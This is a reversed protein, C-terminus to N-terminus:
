KGVKAHLEPAEAKMKELTPSWASLIQSRQVMDKAERLEANIDELFAPWDSLPGPAGEVQPPEMDAGPIHERPLGTPVVTPAPADGGKPPEIQAPEDNLFSTEVKEPAAPIDQVEEAIALGSLCDAFGDRLAYARARNMLMRGPYLAWPQRQPNMWLKARKADAVSFRGEYPTEQGKRWIRYIAVFNDEFPQGETTHEMKIVHGAAQVLAIAGDGFICARNNIIAINALGTLPPLGVECAKLIGIMIRQPDNKYSDPALGAKVIATALRFAEEVTRPVIPRIPAGAILEARRTPLHTASEVIADEIKNEVVEAM